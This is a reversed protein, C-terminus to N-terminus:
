GVAFLTTGLAMLGHKVTRICEGQGDSILPLDNRAVDRGYEVGGQLERLVIAAIANVHLFLCDLRQGAPQGVTISIEGARFFLQPCNGAVPRHEFFGEGSFGFRHRRLVPTQRDAGKFAGQQRRCRKVIVELAVGRGDTRIGLAPEFFEHAISARSAM